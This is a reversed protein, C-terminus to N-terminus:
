GKRLQRPVAVAHYLPDWYPSCTDRDGLRAKEM